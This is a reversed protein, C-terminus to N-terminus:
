ARPIKWRPFVRCGHQNKYSMHQQSTMPLGRYRPPQPLLHRRTRSAGLRKGVGVPQSVLLTRCRRRARRACFGGGGTQAHLAKVVCRRVDSKKHWTNM